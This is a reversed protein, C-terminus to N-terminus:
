PAKVLDPNKRGMYGHRGLGSKKGTTTFVQPGRGKQKSGALAWDSRYSWANEGYKKIVGKWVAQAEKAKGEHFLALGLFYQAEAHRAHESGVKSLLAAADAHEGAFSELVGREAFADSHKELAKRADDFKREWRLIRARGLGEKEAAVLKMAGEVDGMCYRLWAREGVPLKAEADTEASLEKSAGVVKQLLALYKAESAYNSARDILKGDPALIFVDPTPVSRGALRPDIATIVKKAEADGAPSGRGLDFYLPVFRANVL